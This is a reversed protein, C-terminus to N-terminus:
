RPELRFIKLVEEASAAERDWKSSRLWATENTFFEVALKGELPSYRSIALYSSGLM